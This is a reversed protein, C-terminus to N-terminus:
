IQKKILGRALLMGTYGDRLPKRGMRIRKVTLDDQAWNRLCEDVQDKKIDTAPFDQDGVHYGKSHEMFAIAFPSDPKLVRLFNEMATLFEQQQGTISEAVFFMTGVDYGCEDLLEFISGHRVDTRATLEARPQLFSRYAKNKSLLKWFKEWGEQWSPWDKDKQENLWVVNSKSHEYLTIRRCFPLMTLAPYLNSGTGVDIGLPDPPMGPKALEKAFFDRVLKIIQRDARLLSAYNRQFYAEPDFRDWPYDDNCGKAESTEQATPM